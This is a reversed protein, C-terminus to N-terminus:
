QTRPSCRPFRRSRRTRKAAPEATYPPPGSSSWLAAPFSTLQVLSRLLPNRQHTAGHRVLRVVEPLKSPTNPNPPFAIGCVCSRFTEPPAASAAAGTACLPHFSFVSSFSSPLSGAYPTPPPGPHPVPWFFHLIAAPM